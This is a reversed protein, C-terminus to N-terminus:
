LNKFSVYVKKKKPNLLNKGFFRGETKGHPNNLIYAKQM